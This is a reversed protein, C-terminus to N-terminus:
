SEKIMLAAGIIGADNGTVALAFKINDTDFRAYAKYKEQINDVLFNGAKSVGGGIIFIQPEIVVAIIALARALYDTVREFTALGAPDKEKAVDFVDKVTFAKDKLISEPYKKIMKKTYSLIGKTGAVQELCGRSGCGCDENVESPDLVLMHGIEGGTGTAGEVMEGSLIVGGGVGTGLTIMVVDDFAEYLMSREGLAAINADNAFRVKVGEPLMKQFNETLNIQYWSLNPCRVVFGEKIPCPVAVGIGEIDNFTLDHKQNLQQVGELITNFISINHDEKPTDLEIKEIHQMASTFLGIKIATGGVDVGYIFNRM